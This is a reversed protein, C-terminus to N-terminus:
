RSLRTQSKTVGHVTAQWPGRDKPNGLCSYQRPNGHWRGPCRWLGPILGLDGANCTSEKGDSGGPFGLKFAPSTWFKFGPGWVRLLVWIGSQGALPPPPKTALNHGVKTIGRIVAQWEKRWPIKGVWPNVRHKRHQLCVINDSGGPFDTQIQRWTLTM